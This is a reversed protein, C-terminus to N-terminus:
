SSKNKITKYKKNQKSRHLKQKQLFPCEVKEDVENLLYPCQTNNKKESLYPCTENKIQLSQLYPCKRDKGLDDISNAATSGLIM